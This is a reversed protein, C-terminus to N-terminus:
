SYCDKLRSANGFWGALLFVIFVKFFLMLFKVTSSFNSIRAAAFVRPKLSAAFFYLTDIALEIGPALLVFCLASFAKLIASDAVDAAFRYRVPLSYFYEGDFFCVRSKAGALDPILEPAFPRRDADFRDASNLLFRAIGYFLAMGPFFLIKAKFGGSREFQRLDINTFKVNM